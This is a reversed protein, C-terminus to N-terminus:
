ALTATPSDVIISKGNPRPLLVATISGLLILTITLVGIIGDQTSSAFLNKIFYFIATDVVLIFMSIWLWALKDKIIFFISFLAIAM